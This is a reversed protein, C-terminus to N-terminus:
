QINEGIYKLLSKPHRIDVDQGLEWIMIGGLKLEEILQLKPELTKPVDFFYGNFVGKPSIADSLGEVDRYSMAKNWKWRHRGYFPVGAFIKESPIGHRMFRKASRKMLSYSAQGKFPSFNDYLMLNVGSIYPEVSATLRAQKNWFGVAVTIDIGEPNLTEYLDKILMRFGEKQAKNKPFEWDIDIGSLNYKQSMELTQRVFNARKSEDATMEIFFDSKGWGGFCVSLKVPRGKILDNLRNLDDAIKDLGINGQGDADIGFYIADTITEFVESTMNAVSRDPIYGVVRKQANIGGMFITAIIILTIQKM